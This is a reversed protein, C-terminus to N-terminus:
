ENSIPKLKRALDVISKLNQDSVDMPVACEPALVDYGARAAYLAECKVHGPKSNRLTLSNNINGILKMKGIERKAEFADVKSEIHYAPWGAKEFHGLRDLTNGCCHLILPPKGNLSVMEMDTKHFRNIIKGHVPMLFKVYTQPSVLDGTVHDPICLLDAGAKLQLKGFKFTFESLKQLSKKVKDPKKITWKLFKEMGFLHYSLTWPGMVKGILCIDSYERSLKSISELLAKAPKKESLDAPITIKEIADYPPCKRDPMKEESGWDVPIGLSAAGIWVSFHPMLADYNLIDHSGAALKVMKKSDYHAEPFYANTKEMQEVTAVSTPSGVPLRDVCDGKLASIFREKSTMDESVKEGQLTKYHIFLWEGM